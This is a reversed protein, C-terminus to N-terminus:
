YAGHIQLEIEEYSVTPLSSQEAWDIMKRVLGVYDSYGSSFEDYEGYFGYFTTSDYSPQLIIPLDNFATGSNVPSSTSLVGIVIKGARVAAELESWTKDVSQVPIPLSPDDPDPDGVAIKVIEVDSGSGSGGGASSGGYIRGNKIIKPM